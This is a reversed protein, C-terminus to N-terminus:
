YIHLLGTGSLGDNYKHMHAKLQLAPGGTKGGYLYDRSSLGEDWFYPRDGRGYYYYEPAM